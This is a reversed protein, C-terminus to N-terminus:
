FIGVLSGGGGVGVGKVRSLLAQLEPDIDEEEGGGKRKKVTRFVFNDLGKGVKREKREEGGGEEGAKIRSQLKRKKVSASLSELRAALDRETQEAIESAQQAQLELLDKRLAKEEKRSARLHSDLATSTTTTAENPVEHSEQVLPEQSQTPLSPIGIDSSPNTNASVPETPALNLEETRPLEHQPEPVGNQKIPLKATPRLSALDSLPDDDDEDDRACAITRIAKVPKQNVASAPPEHVKGLPSKTRTTSRRSNAQLQHSESDRVHPEAISTTTGQKKPRGRKKVGPPPQPPDQEQPLPASGNSLGPAIRKKRRLEQPLEDTDAPQDLHESSEVTISMGTNASVTAKKPRGRKKQTQLSPVHDHRSEPQHDPIAAITVLPKKPRGRRKTEPAIMVEPAQIDAEVKPDTNEEALPVEITSDVKRRKKPKQVQGISKRKKGKRKPVQRDLEAQPQAKVLSLDALVEDPEPSKPKTEIVIKPPRPSAKAITVPKRGRKVPKKEIASVATSLDTGPDQRLSKQREDVEKLVPHPEKPPSIKKRKQPSQAIVKRRRKRPKAKTETEVAVPEIHDEVKTPAQAEEVLNIEESVVVPQIAAPKVKRRQTQGISKRKRKRPKGPIQVKGEGKKDTDDITVSGPRKNPTDGYQVATAETVNAEVRNPQRLRPTTRPLDAPGPRAVSARPDKKPMQLRTSMSKRQKKPPAMTQTEAIDETAKRKRKMPVNGKGDRQTNGSAPVDYKAVAAETRKTRQPRATTNAPKSLSTPKSTVQKPTKRTSRMSPHELQVDNRSRSSNQPKMPTKSIQQVGPLELDFALLIDRTGAGRQRM